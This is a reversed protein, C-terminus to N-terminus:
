PQRTVAYDSCTNGEIGNMGLATAKAKIEAPTVGKGAQQRVYARVFNTRNDTPLEQTPITNAATQPVPPPSTPATQQPLDGM